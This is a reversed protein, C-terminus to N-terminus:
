HHGEGTVKRATPVLREPMYEGSDEEHVPSNKQNSLNTGSYVEFPPGVDRPSSM